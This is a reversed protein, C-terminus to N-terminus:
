RRCTSRARPVEADPIAGGCLFRGGEDRALDVHAAVIDRHKPHVLPGVQAPRRARGSGASRRPCWDTFFEDYIARAVFLRSGAICSQGTSSFIGYMVGNLATSTPTTWCSRRRSAAWSWRSPM